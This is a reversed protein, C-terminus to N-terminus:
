AGFYKHTQKIGGNFNEKPFNTELKDRFRETFCGRRRGARTQGAGFDSWFAKLFTMDGSRCSQLHRFCGIKPLM